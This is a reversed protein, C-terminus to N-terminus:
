KQKLEKVFSDNCGTGDFCKPAYANGIIKLEAAALLGANDGHDTWLTLDPNGIFGKKRFDTVHPYIPINRENAELFIETALWLERDKCDLVKKINHAKKKFLASVVEQFQRFHKSPM